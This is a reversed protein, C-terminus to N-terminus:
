IGGRLILPRIRWLLAMLDLFVRSLPRPPSLLGFFPRLELMHSQEHSKPHDSSTGPGKTPIWDYRRLYPSTNSVGIYTGPHDLRVSGSFTRFRIGIPFLFDGPPGEFGTPHRGGMSGTPRIREAGLLRQGAPPSIGSYGGRHAWQDIFLFPSIKM